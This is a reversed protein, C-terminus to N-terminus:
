QSNRELEDLIKLVKNAQREIMLNWETGSSCIEPISCVSIIVGIANRLDHLQEKTFNM